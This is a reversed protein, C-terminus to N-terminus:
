MYKPCYDAHTTKATNGGCVCTIIDVADVKMWDSCKQLNEILRLPIKYGNIKINLMDRNYAITKADDINNVPKQITGIPFTTGSSSNPASADLIVSADFWDEKLDIIEDIVQDNLVKTM